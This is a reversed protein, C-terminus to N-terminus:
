EDKKKEIKLNRIATQIFPPFQQINNKLAISKELGEKNELHQLYSSYLIFILGRNFEDLADDKVMALAKEEFVIREKSETLAWGLRWVTGLYHNSPLNQARLTLGLMLDVINLNLEELEKLYTKRQGWAYSGDSVRDFHDNMIDLHARLFIDWSHAKASLIAIDRAHLRPSDDQSCQGVVRYCRKMLLAKDDLGIREAIKELHYQPTRNKVYDDITRGLLSRFKNDSALKEIAFEVQIDTLEENKGYTNNRKMKGNIYTVIEHVNKYAEKKSNSTWYDEKGIFISASTDIMCDVYQILHAYRAPIRSQQWNESYYSCNLTYSDAYQDKPSYYYDWDTFDTATGKERVYSTNYGTSASGELYYYDIDGENKNAKIVLHTSDASQLYEKYYALLDHPSYGEKIKEIIQKLSNTKSSFRIKFVRKQQFSNYFPNAECTRFRLNLSDVTRRLINMDATSYILGNSYIPFEGNESIVKEPEAVPTTQSKCSGAILLAGALILYCRNM